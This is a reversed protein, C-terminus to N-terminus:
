DIFIISFNTIDSYKIEIFVSNTSIGLCDEELKVIVERVYILVSNVSIFEVEDFSFSCFSGNYTNDNSYIQSLLQELELRKTKNKM